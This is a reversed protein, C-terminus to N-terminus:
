FISSEEQFKQNITHRRYHQRTRVDLVRLMAPRRIATRVPTDYILGLCRQSYGAEPVKEESM